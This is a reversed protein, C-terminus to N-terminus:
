KLDTIYPTVVVMLIDKQVSVGESGGVLWLNENLPHSSSNSETTREVTAIVKPVGNKLNSRQVFNKTSTIPLQVKVDGPAEDISDISSLNLSYDLMINQGIAKPTATMTIGEAVIGVEVETTTNGTDDDDETSIQEIYTRNKTIQVPVPMNNLTSAVVKNEVTAQGVEDLLNLMASTTGDDFTISNEPANLLDIADGFSVNFKDNIGQINISTNIDRDDNVTLNIVEVKLFVERFADQNLNEIVDNVASLVFDNDTLIIKGQTDNFSVTGKESVMSKITTKVSEWYETKSNITISQENATSSEGNDSGGSNNSEMTTTISSDKEITEGFGMITFTRTDYKYVFIKNTAQDFRWKLGKKVVIYDLLEKLSGNHDVYIDNETEEVKEDEYIIEEMSSDENPNFYQMASASTDVSDITSSEEIAEPDFRENNIFDISLGTRKYIDGAIETLPIPEDGFMLMKKHFVSPLTNKDEQIIEMPTTDVYFDDVIRSTPKEKPLMESIEHKLLEETKSNNENVENWKETHTSSCGTLVLSGVAIAIGTKKMNLGNNNM